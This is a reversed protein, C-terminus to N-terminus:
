GEGGLIGDDGFLSLQDAHFSTLFNDIEQDRKEEPAEVIHGRAKWM